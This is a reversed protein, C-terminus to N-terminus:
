PLIIICPSHGLYNHMMQRSLRMIGVAAHIVLTGVVSFKDIHWSEHMQHIVLLMWISVCARLFDTFPSLLLADLCCSM